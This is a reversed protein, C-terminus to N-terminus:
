EQPPPRLIIDLPAIGVIADNILLRFEYRGAESFVLGMFALVLNWESTQDLKDPQPFAFTGNLKGLENGDENHLLIEYKREKGFEGLGAAVKGVLYMAPVVTPVKETYVRNFAGIINLKNSADVNAYDALLFIRTEV